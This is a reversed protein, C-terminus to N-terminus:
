LKGIQWTHHVWCKLHHNEHFVTLPFAMVRSHYLLFYLPWSGFYPLVEEQGIKAPLCSCSSTSQRIVFNWLLGNKMKHHSNTITTLFALRVGSGLFILMLSLLNLQNDQFVIIYFPHSHCFWDDENAHGESSNTHSNKQGAVKVSMIAAFMTQGIAELFWFILM